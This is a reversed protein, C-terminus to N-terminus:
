QVGRVFHRATPGTTRGQERLYAPPPANAHPFAISSNRCLSKCGFDSVNPCSVISRRTSIVGFLVMLMALMATMDEPVTLTGFLATHFRARTRKTPPATASATPMPWFALGAMASPPTPMSQPTMRARKKALASFGQRDIVLVSPWLCWNM